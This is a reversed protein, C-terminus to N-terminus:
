EAAAQSPLGLWLEITGARPKARTYKTYDQVDVSATAINAEKMANSAAQALRDAEPRDSAWYYRVEFLGSQPM